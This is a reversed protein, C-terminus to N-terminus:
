IKVYNAFCRQAWSPSANKPDPYGGCVMGALDSRGTWQGGPCVFLLCIVHRDFLCISAFLKPTQYSSALPSLTPVTLGRELEAM